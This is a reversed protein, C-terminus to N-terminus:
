RGDEGSLVRRIGARVAEQVDRPVAPAPLAQRLSLSRKLSDCATRCRPCAALHREMEACVDAGIEEELHRSFLRVIDPCPEGVAAAVPPAGLAPALRRRLDARARHLRSKVAEVGLGTVEVVESATLGEVDRLVLVERYSPALSAIAHEVAAELRRSEMVEDLGPGPAARAAAEDSAETDLSLEVPPAYKSRRRHKICVRRAITYLWTSLSSAGKFARVGRAVALLTDQVVDRADEPHRRMKLSFRYIRPQYQVLLTELAAADGARVAQLLDEDATEAV